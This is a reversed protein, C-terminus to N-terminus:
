TYPCWDTAAAVTKKKELLLRCVLDFRSQLESTHEESRIEGPDADGDLDPSYSVSVPGSYDGPYSAGSGGPQPATRSQERPQRGGSRRKSQSQRLYRLGERVGIRAARNVLSKWNM